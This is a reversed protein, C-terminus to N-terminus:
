LLIFEGRIRLKMGRPADAGAAVAWATVWQACREREAADHLRQLRQLRADARDIRQALYLRQDMPDTKKSYHQM